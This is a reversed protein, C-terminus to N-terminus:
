MVRTDEQELYECEGGGVAGVQKVGRQEPRPAKVLEHVNADGLIARLLQLDALGGYTLSDTAFVFSFPIM